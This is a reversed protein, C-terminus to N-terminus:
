SHILASKMKKLRHGLKMKVKRTLSLKRRMQNQNTRLMRRSRRSRKLRRTIMRDQIQLGQIGCNDMDEISAIIRSFYFIILILNCLKYVQSVSQMGSSSSMSNNLLNGMAMSLVNLPNVNAQLLSNSQAQLLASHGYFNSNNRPVDMTPNLPATVYHPSASNWSDRQYWGNSWDQQYGGYRQNMQSMNNGPSTKNSSGNTSKSVCVSYGNIVFDQGCIKRAVEPDSFTVFAYGKFKKPYSIEVIEGFKSFFERLDSAKIAENVRGIFCKNEQYLESPDRYDPLAVRIQQGDIKHKVNGLARMQDTYLKFRIFAFRRSLGTKRDRKIEAMLLPGYKAEFYSKLANEDTMPSLNLVILDITKQASSIEEVPKNSKEPTESTEEAKIEVAAKTEVAAKPFVCLYTIQECDWGDDENGSLPPHFKLQSDLKVIRYIGSKPNRFKLGTTGPFCSQLTTLLLTGDSELPVECEEEGFEECVKICREM